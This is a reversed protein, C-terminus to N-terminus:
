DEAEVFHSLLEKESKTNDNTCLWYVYSGKVKIKSDCLKEYQEQVYGDFSNKRSELRSSVADKVKSTDATKIICVEDADGGSGAWYVSYEEYDGENLGYEYQFNEETVEVMEPFETGCNLVAQAVDNLPENITMSSGCGTLWLAAASLIITNFFRKIKIM